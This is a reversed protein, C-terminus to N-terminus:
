LSIASLILPLVFLACSIVFINAIEDTIHRKCSKLCIGLTDTDKPACPIVIDIRM